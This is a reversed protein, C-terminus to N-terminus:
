TMTALTNTFTCTVTEGNVLTISGSTHGSGSCPSSSLTWGPMALEAVNYTGAALAGSTVPTGADTLTFNSSSWSPDFEFAETAGSPQTVKDVVIHGHPGTNTFTCTIVADKVLGLGTVERNSLNVTGYSNGSADRCSIGSLTWDDQSSESIRYTGTPIAGSDVPAGADTLHFHSSGLWSPNFRFEQSAGSPETVKDVIIHGHDKTNTFVCTITEGVGLSISAPTDDGAGGTCVASTQTWGSESRESVSYTGPATLLGSNMPTTSDTMHFHSNGNWGVPDFIFEQSSGAPDTVKDVIIRGKCVDTPYSLTVPTYGWSSTGQSAGNNFPSASYAQV